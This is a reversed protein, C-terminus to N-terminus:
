VFDGERFSVSDLYGEVRARIEVDKSGATQGVLEMTVPVDKAVAQTVWVEPAPLVMAEKKKCGAGALSLVTVLAATLLAPVRHRRGTPQVYM